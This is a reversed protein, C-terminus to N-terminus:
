LLDGTLLADLVAVLFDGGLYAIALLGVLCFAAALDLDGGLFACAAYFLM